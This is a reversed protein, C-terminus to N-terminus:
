RPFDGKSGNSGEIRGGFKKLRRERPVVVIKQAEPEKTKSVSELPTPQNKQLEELTKQAEGYKKM